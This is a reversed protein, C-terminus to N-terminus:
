EDDIDDQSRTLLVVCDMDQETQGLARRFIAVEYNLDQKYAFLLENKLAMIKQYSAEVFAILFNLM